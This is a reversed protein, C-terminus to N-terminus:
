EGVEGLREVLELLNGDLDHFFACRVGADVADHPAAAIAVGREQLGAVAEDCSAVEFASHAFGRISAAEAPGGFATPRKRTGPMAVLEILSGGDVGQLLAFNASAGPISFRRTCVLGLAAQYWEISLDLDAVSICVHHSTIKTGLPPVVAPGPSMNLRSEASDKVIWVVKAQDVPMLKRSGYHLYCLNDIQANRGTIREAVVCLTAHDDVLPM